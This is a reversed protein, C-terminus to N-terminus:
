GAIFRVVEAQTGRDNDFGGHTSSAVPPVGPRQPDPAGPSVHVTTNPLTKGYPDFYKQMGLLPTTTGGEFSESVLYLLSRRYPGCTPDDEEAQESLHFQQFRKVAGSQLHPRVREDFTQLKVAPALFSLSEFRMGEAVLRDIMYSAVIAGASHGVLHLRVQKNTVQHKFHRYMLVAGAQKDDEVGSQFCSIADANQKMEGWIATGPRALLRELRQNWWKEISPGAGTPRPSGKVADEITNMVTSIFDTEWMLFIPFIRSDYLLPIWLAAAEAADDEGVLGGHAYICVDIPKSELGWLKRAAALQVDVIARVDDPTTRFTGSNSLAGNNGMNLIFPSIERNRLVKGAALTVKNDADRRLTMSGAIAQHERTVVGLQAVWCDMVNRLWDDYTLIAWGFSGWETGWSNQILFGYENYGIIAFAHGPHQAHTDKVPIVWVDKFSSPPRKMPKRLMGDDWGGHCGASAYLIGVENLAAHMDTISRPDIRYYAGLPRKVADLWWDDKLSSSAKPMELGPFLDSACAGHKFWGKLAGRISSGDDAVSGPFEDYRRAMSYLMYPSIQPKAERKSKRLLHEVVLSLAFGTCANSTQQHKIPSGQAPFMTVQPTVSVNPRFPRDRADLADPKAVRMFPPRGSTKVEAEAAAEAKRRAQTKLAKKGTPARKSTTTARKKTPM